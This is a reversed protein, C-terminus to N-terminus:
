FPEEQSIFALAETIRGQNLMKIIESATDFSLIKLSEESVEEGAKKLMQKIAKVQAVTAVQGSQKENSNTRSTAPLPKPTVTVTKEEPIEEPVEKSVSTTPINTEHETETDPIEYPIEDKEYIGSFIDPFAKRFAVAEACKSLMINWKKWMTTPKGDAGVQVYERYHAVGVFPREIGKRYVRAIAAVPIDDELTYLTEVIQHGSPTNRKVIFQVPDQGDYQGSREAILRFGDIGIHITAVDEWEGLANKRRRKVFHIQGALPDLGLKKARYLFLQLEENTASPAILKRILEVKKQEESSLEEKKQILINPM